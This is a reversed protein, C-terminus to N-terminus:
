QQVTKITYNGTSQLRFSSIPDHGEEVSRAERWQATAKKECIQGGEMPDHGRECIQGGEMPDHSEKCLDPRKKLRPREEV